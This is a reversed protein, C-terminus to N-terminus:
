SKGDESCGGDKSIISERYKFSEVRDIKDCDLGEEGGENM